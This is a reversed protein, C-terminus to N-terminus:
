RECKSGKRNLEQLIQGVYAIKDNFHSVQLSLKNAHNKSAELDNTLKESKNKFETAQTEANKLKEKYNAAM